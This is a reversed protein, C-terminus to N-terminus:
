VGENRPFAWTVGVFRGRVCPESESFEQDSIMLGM